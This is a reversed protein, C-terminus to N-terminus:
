GAIRYEKILNQEVIIKATDKQVACKNQFQGFKIFCEIIQAIEEHAFYTIKENQVASSFDGSNNSQLANPLSLLSVITVCTFAVRFLNKSTLLRSQTVKIYHNQYNLLCKCSRDLASSCNVFDIQVTVRIKKTLIPKSGAAKTVQKRLICIRCTGAFCKCAWSPISRGHKGQILKQLVRSM